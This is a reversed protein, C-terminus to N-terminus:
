FMCQERLKVIANRYLPFWANDNNNYDDNDNDNKDETDNDINSDEDKDNNNENDNLSHNDGTITTTAFRMTVTMIAIM